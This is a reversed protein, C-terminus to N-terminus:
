ICLVEGMLSERFNLKQRDHRFHHTISLKILSSILDNWDNWALNEVAEVFKERIKEQKLLLGQKSDSLQIRLWWSLLSEEFSSM